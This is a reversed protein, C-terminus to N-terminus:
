FRQNGQWDLHNARDFGGWTEGRTKGSLLLHGGDTISTWPRPPVLMPLKGAPLSINGCNRVHRQYLQVVAPHAKIYGSATTYEHEYTHFFAPVIKAGKHNFMNGNIKCERIMMEILTCGVKFRCLRNTSHPIWHLISHVTYNFLCSSFYSLFKIFTSAPKQENSQYYGDM